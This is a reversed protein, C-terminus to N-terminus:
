GVGSRPPWVTTAVSWLAGLALGLRATLFYVAALAVICVWTPLRSPARLASM